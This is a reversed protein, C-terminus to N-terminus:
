RGTANHVVCVNHTSGIKSCVLKCNEKKYSDKRSKNNNFIQMM